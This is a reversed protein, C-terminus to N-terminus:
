SCAATERGVRAVVPPVIFPAVLANGSNEEGKGVKLATAPRSRGANKSLIAPSVALAVRAPITVNVTPWPADALEKEHTRPATPDDTVVSRGSPGSRSTSTSSSVHPASASPVVVGRSANPRPCMRTRPSMDRARLRAAATVPRDQDGSRAVDPLTRASGSLFEGIANVVPTTRHTNVASSEPKVVM